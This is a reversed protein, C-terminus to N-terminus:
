ITRNQGATIPRRHGLNTM